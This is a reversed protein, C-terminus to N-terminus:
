IFTKFKFAFLICLVDRMTMVSTHLLLFHKAAHQSEPASQEHQCKNMLSFTRLTCVAVLVPSHLLLYFTGAAILWRQKKGADRLLSHAENIQCVAATHVVLPVCARASHHEYSEAPFGQIQAFAEKSMYMFLLQKHSCRKRVAADMKRFVARPWLAFVLNLSHVQLPTWPKSKGGLLLYHYWVFVCVFVCERM